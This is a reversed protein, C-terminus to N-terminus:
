LLHAATCSSYGAEMTLTSISRMQADPGFFGAAALMEFNRKDHCQALMLHLSRMDEGAFTDVARTVSSVPLIIVVGEVGPNSTCMSGVNSARVKFCYCGPFAPMLGSGEDAWAEQCKSRTTQSHRITQAVFPVGGPISDNSV